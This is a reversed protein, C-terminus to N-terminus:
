TVVCVVTPDSEQMNIILYLMYCSMTGKKTKVKRQLNEQSQKSEYQPQQSQARASKLKLVKAKTLKMLIYM